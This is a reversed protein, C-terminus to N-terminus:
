AGATAPGGLGTNPRKAKPISSGAAPITPKSSGGRDISGGDLVIKIEEGSLTEYELL